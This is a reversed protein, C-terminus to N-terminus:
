KQITEDLPDEPLTEDFVAPIAAVPDIVKAEDSKKSPVLLEDLNITPMQSDQPLTELPAIPEVSNEDLSKSSGFSQKGDPAGSIPSLDLKYPNLIEDKKEANFNMSDADDNFPSFFDDNFSPLGQENNSSTM